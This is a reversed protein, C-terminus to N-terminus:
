SSSKHAIQKEAIQCVNRFRNYSLDDLSCSPSCRDAYFLGIAKGDIHISRALFSNTKILNKVANPILPWFSKRNDDNIWISQPKELMRTFLHPSKIGLKFRNFLPDNDTGVMYRAVLHTRDRNIMAFVVRNLGIGDHMGHIVTRIINHLNLLHANQELEKITKEYLDKQPTLCVTNAPSEERRAVTSSSTAPISGLNTATNPIKDTAVRASKKRKPSALMPLLAAAPRTNYFHVQHAANVALKHIESVAQALPKNLHDAVQELLLVLEDSYWGNEALRAMQVALVVSRIRPQEINEPRLCDQLFQPLNWIRALDRSFHEVSNGLVIYQAEDRPLKQEQLQASLQLMTECDSKWLLMESVDYLLAALYIQEPVLDGLARAWYWAQYAAHHSRSIVQLMGYHAQKPLLKLRPLSKVCQVTQEVGMVMTAQELSPDEARLPNKSAGMTRLIKLAIGPDLQISQSFAQWPADLTKASHEITKVSSAFIPIDIESLQKTSIKTNM